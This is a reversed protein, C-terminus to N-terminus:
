ALLRPAAVFWTTEGSGDEAEVTRRFPVLIRIGTAGKRVQRGLGQWAKYWAVRTADPRQHVILLVNNVSYAHM